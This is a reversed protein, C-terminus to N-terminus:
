ATDQTDDPAAEPRATAQGSILRLFAVPDLITLGPHSARFGPDAMLDLLDKDRSVLYRAETALALDLYPEDKPDRPLSSVKPVDTVLVAVLDLHRLLEDVREDTLRPNKRRVRPRGLVDRVELLIAESIHLTFRGADLLQLLEATPGTPSATAQLFTMCDFVAGPREEQSVPAGEAEGAM